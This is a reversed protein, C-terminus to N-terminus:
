SWPEEHVNITRHTFTKGNNGTYDSVIQGHGFLKYKYTVLGELGVPGRAHLKGTSIGVEAGLGYRFGDAFRTSANWFVSAADVQEMFHRAVHENRTIITETHKSGYHNIHSIAEDTGDVIKISVIYDLYETKWDKETAPLADIIHRVQEDGRIEVNKERLKNALPPLIRDAAKRDILITEVANCVAVYQTKSDVVVNVAMQTDADEHIYAHCIGDAHGMVPIQSHKMIYQVFENSGRPIVLDVLDHMSLLESIEERNELLVIWGDPLDAQQSADRIIEFLKRNSERAESGGKLSLANGSKLSLAAIQVLADPRSEFIMCILGIPCSVRYLDLGTDLERASLVSGVPDPLATVGSLGSLTESLKDHQFRLRKLLPASLGEQESRKLDEQNALFIEDARASLEKAITKLANNKREPNLGALIPECRKATELRERVTQM